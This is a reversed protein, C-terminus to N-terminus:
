KKRALFAAAALGGGLLLMSAPEPNTLTAVETGALAVETVTGGLLAIGGGIGTSGFLFSALSSVGGGGGCGYVFPLSGILAAMKLLKGKAM